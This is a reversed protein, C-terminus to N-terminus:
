LVFFGMFASLLFCQQTWYLPSSLDCFSLWYFCFCYIFDADYIASACENVREFVFGISFLSELLYESSASSFPSLLLLFFIGNQSQPSGKLAQTSNKFFLLFLFNRQKDQFKQIPPRIITWLRSQLAIYHVFHGSCQLFLLSSLSFFILSCLSILHPPPSCFLHTIQLFHFPYSLTFSAANIGVGRM